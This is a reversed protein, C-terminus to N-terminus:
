QTVLTIRTSAFYYLVRELLRFVPMRVDNRHITSFNLFSSAACSAERLLEQAGREHPHVVVGRLVELLRESRHGHRGPCFRGSTQDRRSRGTAPVFRAEASFHGLSESCKLIKTHVSANDLFRHSSRGSGRFSCSAFQASRAASNRKTSFPTRPLALNMTAICEAFQLHIEAQRFTCFDILTRSSWNPLTETGYRSSSTRPRPSSRGCRM